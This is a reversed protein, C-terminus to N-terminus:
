HPAKAVCPYIPAHIAIGDGGQPLNFSPIGPCSGFHLESPYECIPKLFYEPEVGPNAIDLLGGGAVPDPGVTLSQGNRCRFVGALYITKGLDVVQLAVNGASDKIEIANDRYNRDFIAPRAQHSWENDVMQALLEGKSNRIQTSVLLKGNQLRIALMPNRGDALLVGGLSDIILRSGGILVTPRKADGSATIVGSTAKVRQDRLYSAMPVGFFVIALILSLWALFTNNVLFNLIRDKLAAEVGGHASIYCSHKGRIANNRCRLGDRNRGKCQMSMTIKYRLTM